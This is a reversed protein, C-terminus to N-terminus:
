HTDLPQHSFTRQNRRKRYSSAAKQKAEVAACAARYAAQKTKEYDDRASDLQKQLTALRNKAAELLQVKTTMEQQSGLAVTQINALNDKVTKHLATLAEFQSTAARAAEIAANMNTETNQLSASEEEVVAHAEQMELELQQVVMQKGTLAAEAAKASQFAKEALEQKIHQAAMQGAAHQAENAAKADQAAKVAISSSKQKPDGPLFIKKVDCGKTIDENCNGGVGKGGSSGSGGGAGGGPGGGGSSDSGDVSPYLSPGEAEIAGAIAAFDSYLNPPWAMRKRQQRKVVRYGRSNMRPCLVSMALLLWLCASQVRMSVSIVLGVPRPVKSLHWGTAQRAKIKIEIFDSHGVTGAADIFGIGLWCVENM